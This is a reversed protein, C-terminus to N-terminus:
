EYGCLRETIGICALYKKKKALVNIKTKLKKM